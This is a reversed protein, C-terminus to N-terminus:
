TNSSPLNRRPSSAARIPTSSRPVGYQAIARAVTRTCFGADLTNSLEWGLVALQVLRDRCLPLHLRGPDPVYTIDMAWVQNPREVKLRRLLHRYVPNYPHKRSTNPKQYIAELGTQRMLRQVRKRNVTHGQRRLWRAM